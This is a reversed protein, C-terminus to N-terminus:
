PRGGRQLFRVRDGPALLAPRTAASVDFMVQETRGIIHWGGPMQQPYVASMGAAVAVSGGPVAPRPTARRALASWPVVEGGVPELYGFGPAFGIMAVRWRQQGHARVIDDASVSLLDAVEALDRGGYDVEITVLSPAHDPGVVAGPSGEIVDLVDLVDLVRQRLDAAPRPSEVLVERMGCRVQLAPLRRELIAAVSEREDGDAVEVVVACDGLWTIGANM